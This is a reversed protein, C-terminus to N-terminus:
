TCESYMVDLSSTKIVKAVDVNCMPMSVMCTKDTIAYWIRSFSKDIVEDDTIDPRTFFNQYITTRLENKWDKEFLNSFTEM